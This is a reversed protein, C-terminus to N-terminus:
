KYVCLCMSLEFIPFLISNNLYVDDNLMGTIKSVIYLPLIKFLKDVITHEFNHCVMLIM